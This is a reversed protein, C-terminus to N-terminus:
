ESDGESDIEMEVNNALVKTFRVCKAKNDREGKTIKDKATDRDAKTKRYNHEKGKCEKPNHRCLKDLCKVGTAKCCYLYKKGYIERVEHVNDPKEM